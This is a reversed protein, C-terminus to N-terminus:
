RSQEPLLPASPRPINDPERAPVPDHGCDGWPHCRLVRKVALAGGRWSGHQRIAELAYASCTPTFRCQCLPGFLFTMAPSLTWRYIRILLILIARLPFHLVFFVSPLFGSHCIKQRDRKQRRGEAKKM